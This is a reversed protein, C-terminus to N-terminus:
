LGQRCVVNSTANTRSVTGNWLLVVYHFGSSEFESTWYNNAKFGQNDMNGWESYLPGVLRDGSAPEPYSNSTLQAVTPQGGRTSCFTRSEPWQQPTTENFTFWGTQTFTYTTIVVGTNKNKVQVTQLGSHGSNLTVVGSTSVSTYATGDNSGDVAWQYATPNNDSLNVKFKAGAFGTQPFGSNAAFTNPNIVPSVNTVTVPNVTTVTTTASRYESTFAGSRTASIIGANHTADAFVYVGTDVDATIM